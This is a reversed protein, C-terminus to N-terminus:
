HHMGLSASFPSLYSTATLLLTGIASTAILAVVILLGVHLKAM